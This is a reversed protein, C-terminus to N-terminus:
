RTRRAPGRSRDRLRARTRRRRRPPPAIRLRGVACRLGAHGADRDDPRARPPRRDGRDRRPVDRRRQPRPPGLEGACIRSSWSFGVVQRADRQGLRRCAVADSSSAHAPASTTTSPTGDCPSRATSPSARGNMPGRRARDDAQGLADLLSRQACSRPRTGLHELTVVRRRMPTSVPGFRARSTAAPCGVADTTAIASAPRRRPAAAATRRASAGRAVRVGVDDAALHRARQLVHDRDARADGVPEAVAVVGLGRQDRAPEGLQGRSPTASPPSGSVNAPSAPM